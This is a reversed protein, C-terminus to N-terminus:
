LEDIRIDLNLKRIKNFDSAKLHSLLCFAKPEPQIPLSRIVTKQSM